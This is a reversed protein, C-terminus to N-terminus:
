KPPSFPALDVPLTRMALAFGNKWENGFPYTRAWVPLGTSLDILEVHWAQPGVFERFRSKLLAGAGVARGAKVPDAKEGLGKLANSVKEREIVTFRTHKRLADEIGEPARDAVDQAERADCEIPLVAISSFTPVPLPETPASRAPPVSGGRGPEDLLNLLPDLREARRNMRDALSAVYVAAGATAVCCVGVVWRFARPPAPAPGRAEDSTSM